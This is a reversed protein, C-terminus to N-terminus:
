HRQGPGQVAADPSAQPPQNAHRRIWELVPRPGGQSLWLIKLRRYEAGGLDDCGGQLALYQWAHRFYRVLLRRM